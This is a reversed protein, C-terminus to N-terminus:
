ANTSQAPGTSLHRRPAKVRAHASLPPPDRKLTALSPPSPRLARQCERHGDAGSALATRFVREKARVLEGTGAFVIDAKSQIEDQVTKRLVHYTRYVGHIWLSALRLETDSMHELLFFHSSSACNPATKGM